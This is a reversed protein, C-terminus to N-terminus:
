ALNIEFRNRGNKKAEYLAEDARKLVKELSTDQQTLNTCGMSITVTPAGQINLPMAKLRSQIRLFIHKINECQSDPLVVLWEEGGWRGLEDRSRLEGAIANAVSKLVEDGVDHGYRDNFLKFHDIDIMAFCLERENKKAEDLSKQAFVSISRRNRTNTLEDILALERFKKKTKIQILLVTVAAALVLLLLLSLIILLWQRFERAELETEALKKQTHLLKNEAEAENLEFMAQYRRTSQEQSLKLQEENLEVWQKYYELALSANNISEYIKAKSRVLALRRKLTPTKEVLPEATTIDTKWGPLQLQAKLRARLLHSLIIMGTVNNEAFVPLINNVLDLARETQQLEEYLSALEYNAYAAGVEDGAKSAYELSLEAYDQAKEINGSSRYTLAINYYTISAEVLNEEVNILELSKLHYEIAQEPQGLEDYMLAISAM